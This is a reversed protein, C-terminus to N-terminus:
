IVSRPAGTLLLCDCKARFFGCIEGSARQTIIKGFLDSNVGAAGGRHDINALKPMAKNGCYGDPNVKYIGTQDSSATFTSKPLQQVNTLM